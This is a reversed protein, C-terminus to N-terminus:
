LAVTVSEALTTTPRGILRSLVRNEDLLANQSAAVDYSAIAEAFEPPLSVQKLIDAYAAQPMDSYPINKGAQRSIEQALDTLTYSVDGALEYTAGDHGDSTLVAVAAEAYDARAALSIRGEGASGIFAGNALAAPISQTYNETYWGNRLITYRLGSNKLANETALHEGALSLPSTDAHLLSTYIIRQVGAERAANIVNKHQSERKGIESSSILLVTDVGVLATALTSPKSYDAERVTVDLTTAKAPTRALAYIERAPILAKLKKIVLQGLQGNAATIAITM